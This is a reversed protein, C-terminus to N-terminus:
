AVKKFPILIIIAAAVEMAMCLMFSTSYSGSFDRLWGVVGPGFAFIM